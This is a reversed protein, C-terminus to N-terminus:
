VFPALPSQVLMCFRHSLADFSRALFGLVGELAFESLQALFLAGPGRCSRLRSSTRFHVEAKTRGRLGVGFGGPYKIKFFSLSITIFSLGLQILFSITIFSLTLMPQGVQGRFWEDM